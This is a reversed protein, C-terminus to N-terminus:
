QTKTKDTVITRLCKENVLNKDKTKQVTNKERSYFLLM